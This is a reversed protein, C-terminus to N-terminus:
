HFSVAYMNFGNGFILQPLDGAMIESCKIRMM